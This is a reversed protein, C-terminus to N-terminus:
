VLSFPRELSLCDLKNEDSVFFFFTKQHQCPVSSTWSLSTALHISVEETAAAIFKNREYIVITLQAVIQLTVGPAQIM